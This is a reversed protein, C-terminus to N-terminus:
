QKGRDEKVIFTSTSLQLMDISLNKYEFYPIRIIPINHQLCWNNKINDRIVTKDHNEKTWFKIRDDYYYHLEGDYEIFYKISNDDNLVAFDFKYTSDTGVLNSVEQHIKIPYQETFLIKNVTLLQRIKDEGKSTKRCGCSTTHGERLNKGSVICMNGCICKCNWMARGDKQYKPDTNRSIVTLYGYVKGTEDIIHQENYEKLKQKKACGCSTTLGRLLSSGNIIKQNGCDCQCLWRAKNFKDNEARAIVTLKGFRQGLLDHVM